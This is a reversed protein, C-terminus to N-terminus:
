YPKGVWSYQWAVSVIKYDGGFRVYAGDAYGVKISQHRTLPFSATVGIRSSKQLTVPNEVGNLSTRGGHWFNGDLSVWLRPRFDYSLHTEFAAIPDQTQDQTGPVYQNRSFFEPNAHLVM